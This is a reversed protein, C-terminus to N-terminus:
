VEALKGNIIIKKNFDERAYEVSKNFRKTATLTCWLLLIAHIIHTFFTKM